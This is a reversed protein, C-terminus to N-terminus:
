KWMTPNVVREPIDRFLLHMQKIIDDTLKPLTIIELNRKLQSITECGIVIKKIDPIERIFLMSLESLSLGTQDSLKRLKELPEKASQLYPPLENPDLFILGQLYISRAYIDIKCKSLEHLLGSHILRHDLINIPVQIVDFCGLSIAMKVEEPTYVSVGIKKIVGEKKLRLLGIVVHGNYTVMDNPHHLLCVDITKLNLKNLSARISQEIIFDISESSISSSLHVSPIKTIITPLIEQKDKQENIFEGILIESDGYGPATDLTHIGKSFAYRIIEIAKQKTPKGSKNGIGYMSGLQATGLILKSSKTQLDKKM